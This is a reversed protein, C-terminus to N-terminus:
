YNKFTDEFGLNHELAGGFLTQRHAGGSASQAREFLAAEGLFLCGLNIPFNRCASAQRCICTDMIWHYSAEHIFHEVIKSPVMFEGESALTVKLPIVQDKPLYMIDDNEFLAYEIM